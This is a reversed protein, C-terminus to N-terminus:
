IVTGGHGYFFPGDDDDDHSDLVGLLGVGGVIFLVSSVIGIAAGLVHPMSDECIAIIGAMGILLLSAFIVLYKIVEGGEFSEM